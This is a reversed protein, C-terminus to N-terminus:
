GVVKKLSEVKEEMGRGVDRRDDIKVTTVVRKVGSSFTAEHAARVVEFAEEASEAEFVTCMPTIEYKGVRRELERVTPALLRSISSGEGLPIVNLEVVVM